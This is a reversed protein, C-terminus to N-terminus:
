KVFGFGLKQLLSCYQLSFVPDVPDQPLAAEANSILSCVELQLPLDGNFLIEGHMYRVSRGPMCFIHGAIGGQAGHIFLSDPVEELFGPIHCLKRPLVIEDGYMINKRFIVGSVNDHLIHIAPIQLAM